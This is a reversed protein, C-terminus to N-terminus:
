SGCAKRADRYAKLEEAFRLRDTAAETLIPLSQDLVGAADTRKALLDDLVKTHAALERDLNGARDLATDAAALAQTCTGGTSGAQPDSQGLTPSASPAPATAVVSPGSPGASSASAPSRLVLFAVAAALVAAGAVLLLALLAPVYRRDEEDYVVVDL